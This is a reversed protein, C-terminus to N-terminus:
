FLKKKCSFLRKWYHVVHNTVLSSLTQICVSLFDHIVASLPDKFVEFAATRKLSLQTCRSTLVKLGSSTPSLRLHLCSAAAGSNRKLSDGKRFSTWWRFHLKFVTGACEGAQQFNFASIWQVQELYCMLASRRPTDTDRCASANFVTPVQFDCAQFWLKDLSPWPASFIDAATAPRSSSIFWLSSWSSSAEPQKQWVFGTLDAACLFFEVYHHSASVREIHILLYINIRFIM